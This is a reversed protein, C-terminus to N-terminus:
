VQFLPVPPDVTSDHPGESSASTKPFGLSDTLVEPAEGRSSFYANCVTNWLEFAEEM